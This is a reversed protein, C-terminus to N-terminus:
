EHVGNLNEGNGSLARAVVGREIKRWEQKGRQGNEEAGANLSPRRGSAGSREGTGQEGCGKMFPKRRGKRRRQRADLDVEKECATRRMEEKVGPLETLGPRGSGRSSLRRWSCKISESKVGAKGGNGGAKKACIDGRKVM